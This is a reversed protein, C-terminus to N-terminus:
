GNSLEGQMECRKVIINIIYAAQRLDSATMPMDGDLDRALNILHSAMGKAQSKFERDM